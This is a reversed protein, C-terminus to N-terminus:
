RAILDLALAATWSFNEAGLGKGTLPDFYERMGSQEVLRLTTKTLAKAEDTYGYRLLGDIILWNMNVWVPGQWYRMEVFSESYLPVSPAPFAQGYQHDNKLMKVLQAARTKTVTGAYLPLLTAISPERILDQTVVNRSYYQKDGSHWLLELAHTTKNFSDVLAPPLPENITQAIDALRQNARILMANFGLDEVAFKPNKLVTKTDYRARRLSRQISYFKLVDIASARQGEAAWRHDRRVKEILLDLQFFDTLKIWLPLSDTLTLAKLLPPSNDMGSEWPHLLVVLGEGHQDRERYLWEHHRILPPLMQRFFHAQKEKNLVEGVRWVAEALLPPQTIASTSHNESSHAAKHSKWLRLSKIVDPHLIMNPLMGNSWQAGILRDLEAIARKPNIHRLGIATFCSDWLWQHPYLGHAPITYDGRDNLALVHRAYVATDTRLKKNM